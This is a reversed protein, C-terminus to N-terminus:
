KVIELKHRRGAPKGTQLNHGTPVPASQFDGRSHMEAAAMLLNMPNTPPALGASKMQDPPLMPATPMM